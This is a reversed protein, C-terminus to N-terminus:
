NSLLAPHNHVDLPDINLVELQKVLPRKLKM